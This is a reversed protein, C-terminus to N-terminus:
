QYKFEFHKEDLLLLNPLSLLDIILSLAIILPGIFITLILHLISEGKYSQRKNNLYIFFSNAICKIYLLPAVFISIVLSIMSYILIM